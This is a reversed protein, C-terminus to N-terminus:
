RKAGGRKPRGQGAADGNMGKVAKKKKEEAARVQAPTLLQLKARKRAPEEKEDDGGRVVPRPPLQQLHPPEEEEEEENGDGNGDGDDGDVSKVAIVYDRSLDLEVAEGEVAKLPVLEDDDDGDGVRLSFSTPADDSAVHVPFVRPGSMLNMSRLVSQEVVQDDEGDEAVYDRHGLDDVLRIFSM